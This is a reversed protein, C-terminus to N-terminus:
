GIAKQVVLINETGLPAKQGAALLYTSGYKSVAEPPKPAGYLLSLDGWDSAGPSPTSGSTPSSGDTPTSSPTSGDTPTSGPTPTPVPIDQGTKADLVAPLTQALGYVAGNYVTTLTPVVRNASKSTYGWTKKGTADDFALIEDVSQGDSTHTCVLATANDSLCNYGDDDESNPLKTEVLAGSALDVAYISSIYHGDYTGTKVYGSGSVYAHKGGTGQVQLYNMTPVPFTKKITGTTGDVVVISLDKAGERGDGKPGAVTGNLVGAARVAPIVSGKKTKPDAYVSASNFKAASTGSQVGLGVAVQGTAADYAQSILRGAGSGAGIVPTLDVAATSLVKGDAPDIWQFSVQSHAKQTGGAEVTQIYATAIVEKGDLQVAMPKTFDIIKTTEVDKSPAHWSQMGDITRGTLGTKNGYLATKGVMGAKGPALEFTGEPRAFPLAAVPSFAKPPDFSPLEPTTPTPSSSPTGADGGPPSDSKKDDGGSCGALLVAAATVAVLPRLM